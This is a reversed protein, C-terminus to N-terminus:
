WGGGGRHGGGAAGEAAAARGPAAQPVVGAGPGPPRGLVAAGDGDGVVLAALLGLGGHQEGAAHGPLVLHLRLLGLGADGGGAPGQERQARGPERLLVGSDGM